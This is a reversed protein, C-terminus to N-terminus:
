PSDLITAPRSWRCNAASYDNFACGAVISAVWARRSASVSASDVSTRARSGWFVSAHVGQTEDPQAGAIRCRGDFEELAGDRRRRRIGGEPFVQGASEVSYRAVRPIGPIQVDGPAIELPRMRQRGCM